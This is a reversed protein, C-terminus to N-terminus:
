ATKVAANKATGWASLPVDKKTAIDLRVGFAQWAEAAVTLVNAFYLVRRM